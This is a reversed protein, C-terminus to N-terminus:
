AGEAMRGVAWCWCALERAIAVNAVSSQKGAADMARRRDVLRRVGANAHRRADPPVSQGAAAKKPARSACKYHWAAEVLLTRLHKNGAKTIGGRCQSEGSSHESPVLGIWAAFGSAKDFRSFRDAECAISAATVADIGKLCRLADCTPKWRPAQALSKVKAELAAKEEDARRVRECYHDLTTMASPDGLDIRGVWAWFDRTWRSKRQGAANREDYVYGHRLLFKSLRQKARVADDRADALARTLDRAGECEPDPVHVETVVGLALQVALFHADRRDTKRGRDAAPRHMKSVAGIVCDVGMARLERCLHFGTVGSEYVCKAPQPLSKMWSALEGPEYGLSKREVEGTAPVFACAKISRAHVDLGVFTTANNM